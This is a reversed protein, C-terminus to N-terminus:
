LLPLTDNRQAKKQLKTQVAAIAAAAADLYARSPNQDNCQGPRYYRWVERQLPRPVLRWHMLCMLLEPKVAMSCHPIHCTHTM